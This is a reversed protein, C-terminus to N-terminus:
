KGRDLLRDLSRMAAAASLYQQAYDFASRGHLERLAPAAALRDVLAVLAAPDGPAVPDPAGARALELAAAGDSEVAAAVPRHSMFYSTLKSPLSMESVGPRENLLLVDAAALVDPYREAECLPLFDLNPLGEGQELLAPRQSGAGMLVWRLDPRHVTRRAAEVINGLDQKLGMNGAHLAVTVGDAWGLECRTTAREATSVDVHSWNPLTHVRDPAVGYLDVQPRFADAVVLVEDARRLAWAELGCVLGAVRGGGTIGSQRAAQGLLDQVVLLLRSRSRAAAMAAAVAGGLAPTVGIVVDAPGTARAAAHALFSMEYAGRRLADQTRPVAHRVRQIQVGNREEARNFVRRYASPVEWTPYTPLGTIVRVRVGRRVLHEAMATTYPAIGTPEPWYNIGVILVSQVLSRSPGDVGTCQRPIEASANQVRHETRNM